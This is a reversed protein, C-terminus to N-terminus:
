LLGWFFLLRLILFTYLGAILDDLVVGMGGEMAQAKDAPFPKVIDFLRFLFFAAATPALDPPSFLNAILFGAIEDIVIRGPDKQRFIREAVDAVWLSFFIFGALTLLLLPVSLAAIRNFALSLPIAVFFTAVTGPFWPSYGTGVGTAFLIVVTRQFRSPPYRAQSM